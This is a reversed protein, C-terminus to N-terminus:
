KDHDDSNSGDNNDNNNFGWKNSDLYALYKIIIVCIFM